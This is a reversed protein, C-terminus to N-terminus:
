QFSVVIMLEPQVTQFRCINQYTKKPLIDRLCACWRKVCSCLMHCSKNNHSVTMRHNKEFWHPIGQNMRTQCLCFIHLLSFLTHLLDIAFLTVTHVVHIPPQVNMCHQDICVVHLLSFGDSNCTHRHSFLLVRSMFIRVQISSCTWMDTQHKDTYYTWFLLKFVSHRPAYLAMFVMLVFRRTWCGPESVGNIKNAM